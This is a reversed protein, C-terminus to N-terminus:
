QRDRQRHVLRRRGLPWVSFEAQRILQIINAKIESFHAKVQVPTPLEAGCMRFIGSTNKELGYGDHNIVKNINAAVLDSAEVRRSDALAEVLSRFDPTGNIKTLSARAYNKRSISGPLGGGSGRDYVDRLGFSNFFRVLDPGSAYTTGEQEGLVWPVLSEITFDSVKM